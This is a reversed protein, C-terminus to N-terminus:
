KQLSPPLGPPSGSRSREAAASAGIEDAAQLAGSTEHVLLQEQQQAGPVEDVGDESGAAAVASGESPTGDDGEPAGAESTVATPLQWESSSVLAGTNAATAVYPQPSQQHELPPTRTASSQVVPIDAPSSATGAAVDAATQVPIGYAEAAPVADVAVGPTDQVPEVAARIQVVEQAQGAATSIQAAQVDAQQVPAQWGAAIQPNQQQPVGLATRSRGAAAAAAALVQLALNREELLDAEAAKMRSWAWADIPLGAFVCQVLCNIGM